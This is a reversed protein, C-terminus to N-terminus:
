KGPAKHPRGPALRGDSRAKVYTYLQEIQHDDLLSTWSQMGKEPRGEKVTKLFVDHTVSGEPGVAVAAAFVDMGSGSGLDLVREGAVLNVLGLHYGVGAFSGVARAPLRDLLDTPYGLAEALRRGTRFHLDRVAENAVDRYMQAIHRALEDPDVGPAADTTPIQSATM